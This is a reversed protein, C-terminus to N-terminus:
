ISDYKVNSSGVEDTLQKKESSKNSEVCEIDSNGPEMFHIKTMLAAGIFPPIGALIFPLM